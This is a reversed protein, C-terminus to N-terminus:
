ANVDFKAQDPATLQLTSIASHSGLFVTGDRPAVNALYNAAKISGGGPMNVVIALPNGPIHRPMHRALLRSYTDYIGVNETACVIQIQKGKFFDDDARAGTSMLASTALALIAIR